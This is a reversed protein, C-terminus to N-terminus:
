MTLHVNFELKQVKRAYQRLRMKGDRITNAFGNCNIKGNGFLLYNGGIKRHQWTVSSFTKPNYRTNDVKLTIEYISIVDWSEM